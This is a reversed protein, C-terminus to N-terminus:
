WRAIRTPATTSSGTRGSSASPASPTMTGRGLILDGPCQEVGCGAKETALVTAVPDRYGHWAVTPAAAQGAGRLGVRRHHPRRLAAVARADDSYGTTTVGGSVGIQWPSGGAKRSDHAGTIRGDPRNSSLHKAANRAQKRLDCLDQGAAAIQATARRAGDPAGAAVQGPRGPSRREGTESTEEAM